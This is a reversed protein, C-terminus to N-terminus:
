SKYIAGALAGSVAHGVLQYLSDTVMTGASYITFSYFYYINCLLPSLVAVFIALVIGAKVGGGLCSAVKAFLIVFVIAFLV